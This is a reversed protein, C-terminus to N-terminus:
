LKTTSIALLVFGRIDGSSIETGYLNKLDSILQEDTVSIKRPM